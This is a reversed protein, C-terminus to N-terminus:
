TEDWRFTITETPTAGPNATPAVRIQYVFFDGFPGINPNTISGNLNLASTSTYSFLDTPDADLGTHNNRNLALGTVGPTGTAKRYGNSPDTSAKACICSVGTGFGNTGDSYVKINNITGSPSVTCVLRLSVWYSYNFDTTPIQIPHSTDNTSHADMTNARTNIGTVNTGTGPADGTFRHIEVTAPM